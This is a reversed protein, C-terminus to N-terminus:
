FGFVLQALLVNADSQMGRQGENLEYGLKAVVSPTFWYNIGMAWQRQNVSSFPTHYKGYRLVPEINTAQIRYAGQLYWAEWTSSARPYSNVDARVKQQVVEGRFNLNSMQYALDAGFVYYDRGKQLLTSNDALNYLSTKGSAASIGVEFQPLPLFGLRGGTVYNGIRDTSGSTSIHDIDNNVTDVLARPGNAIYLTINAKMDAILPFAGRVQLGIEVQPAAEDSDFGIPPDPLKNIWNPSLSQVFQGIASDFKGAGLIVYDNLFWNLNAVDLSTDTNGQENVAFDVSGRFLFLEKYSVLFLPNFDILDFNSDMGSVKRFGISANGNMEGHFDQWGIALPTGGNEIQKPKLTAVENKLRVVETKLESLDKELSNTSELAFCNMSSIIALYIVWSFPINNRSNVEM